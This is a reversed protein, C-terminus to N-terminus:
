PCSQIKTSASTQRYFEGGTGKFSTKINFNLATGPSASGSLGSKWIPPCKHDSCVTSVNVSSYNSLDIQVDPNM